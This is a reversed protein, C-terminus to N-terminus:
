AWLDSVRRALAIPHNIFKGAAPAILFSFVTGKHFPIPVGCLVTRSFRFVGQRGPRSGSECPRSWPIQYVQLIRRGDQHSVQDRVPLTGIFPFGRGQRPTWGLETARFFPTISYAGVFLPNHGGKGDRMTAQLAEAGAGAPLPRPAADGPKTM